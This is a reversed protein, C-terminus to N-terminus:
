LSFYNFGFCWIYVKEYVEFKKDSLNHKAVAIEYAIAVPKYQFESAQAFNPSTPFKFSLLPSWRFQRMSQEKVKLAKVASDYAAQKSEIADEASEIAPSQQLAFNKADKLTLTKEKALVVQPEKVAFSGILCIFALAIAIHVKAKKRQIM